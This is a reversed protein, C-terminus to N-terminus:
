AGPKGPAPPSSPSSGYSRVDQGSAFKSVDAITPNDGNCDRSYEASTSPNGMAGPISESFEEAQRVAARNTGAPLPLNDVGEVPSPDPAVKSVWKPMQKNLM